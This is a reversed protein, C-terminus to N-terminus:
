NYCLPKLKDVINKKNKLCKKFTSWNWVLTDIFAIEFNDSNNILDKVRILAKKHTLFYEMITTHTNLNIYTIRYM